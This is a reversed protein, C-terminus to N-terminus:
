AEEEDGKKRFKEEISDKIADRGYWALTGATIVANLVIVGFWHKKYFGVSEKCLGAYDKWFKRM